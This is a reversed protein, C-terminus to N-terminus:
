PVEDRHLLFVYQDGGSTDLWTFPTSPFAAELADRNHGIEVVLLGDPQLHARAAALIARTLDLGDEGSALAIEPECRYEDPLTDMSEANVYPPNALILDYRRSGLGAFLDGEVLRVRAALDYDAVNRRAVALADSSIDVADVDAAPFAHAALIALCASGTCLDLVSTVRDPDDIWPALQERLLEAIFSRPVIVRQDVYFRFEGLWAENTLYAVPLREEIRRRILYLLDAREDSTLRADLFPELRSPPLHLRQLLLYVAEDWANDIGHGFFLGAEHYRSVAFRLLDRLTLLEDRAQEFM